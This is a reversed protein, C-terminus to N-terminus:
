ARRPGATQVILVGMMVLLGGAITSVAVSEGLLAVAAV